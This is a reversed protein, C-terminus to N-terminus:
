GRRGRLRRGAGSLPRASRGGRRRPVATSGATAPAPRQKRRPGRSETRRPAAEPLEGAAPAEAAERESDPLLRALWRPLWWSWPGLARMIAPLLVLRIVTADLVIAFTLGAGFQQLSAIEAMAFALFVSSMIAAAGTIVGATSRLGHEIAQRHDGSALWAERMRTLLFVEYDVSLVFMITLVGAASIADIYRPGVLLDLGLFLQLAGFAAAITLLNLAVAVIPLTLSRLVAILMLVSVLCLAAVLLPLRAM